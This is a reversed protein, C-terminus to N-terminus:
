NSAETPELKAKKGNGEGDAVKRKMGTTEDETKAVKKKVLGSIDKIESPDVVKETLQTSSSSSSSPKLLEEEAAKAHANLENTLEEVENKAEETNEENSEIHAKLNVLKRELVEIVVTTHNLASSFEKSFEYALALKYHAEALERDSNTLLKEKIKVAETFDEIASNWQGLELSIDGLALLVDAVKLRKAEGMKLFIVRALDLSEWAIQMDEAMADEEGEEEGEGEGEGEEGEATEEGDDERVGPKAMAASAGVNAKIAEVVDSASVNEGLPSSKSVANNFLAVGYSYLVDACEFADPGYITALLQSASGFEEVAGEFNALALARKGEAVHTAAQQKMEEIEEPKLLQQQQQQEQDEM